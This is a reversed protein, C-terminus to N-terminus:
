KFPSEGFSLWSPSERKVEALGLEYLLPALRTSRSCAKECLKGHLYLVTQSKTNITNNSAWRIETISLKTNKTECLFSIGIREYHVARPRKVVRAQRKEM